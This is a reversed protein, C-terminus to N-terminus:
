AKAASARSSIEGQTDNAGVTIERPLTLTEIGEATYHRATDPATPRLMRWAEEKAEPTSCHVLLFGAGARAAALDDEAYAAETGILRSLEAMLLGWFGGKEIHAEAYQLVEEGTALLMEDKSWGNAALEAAAAQASARGPYVALLHQKPYFVGFPNDAEPLYHMLDKMEFAGKATEEPNHAPAARRSASGGGPPGAVAL